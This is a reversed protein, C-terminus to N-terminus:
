AAEKYYYPWSCLKEVTAEGGYSLMLEVLKDSLSGRIWDLNLRERAVLICGETDDAKNGGHIRIREFNYVDFLEPLMKGFRPSMTLRCDYIGAPIATKGWVKTEMPGRQRDELTRGFYSGNVLMVGTTSASTYDTTVITIRM